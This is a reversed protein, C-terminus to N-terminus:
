LLEGPTRRQKRHLVFHIMLDFYWTFFWSLLEIRVIYTMSIGNFQEISENAVLEGSLENAIVRNASNFQQAELLILIGVNTSLAQDCPDFENEVIRESFRRWIEIHGETQRHLSSPQKQIHSVIFFFYTWRDLLTLMLQILLFETLSVFKENWGFTKGIRPLFSLFFLPLFSKPGYLIGNLRTNNSKFIEVISHISSLSSIVVTPCSVGFCSCANLLRTNTTIKFSSYCCRELCNVSCRSWNELHIVNFLNIRINADDDDDYVNHLYRLCSLFSLIRTLFLCRCRCLSFYFLIFLPLHPWKSKYM